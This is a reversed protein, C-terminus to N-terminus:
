ILPLRSLLELLGVALTSPTTSSSSHSHTRLIHARAVRIYLKPGPSTIFLLNGLRPTSLGLSTRVLKAQLSRRRRTNTLTHSEDYDQPWTTAPASTASSHQGHCCQLWSSPENTTRHLMADTTTNAMMEMNGLTDYGYCTAV